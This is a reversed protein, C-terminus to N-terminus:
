KINYVHLTILTVMNSIPLVLLTEVVNIGYRPKMAMVTQIRLRGNADGARRRVFDVVENVDSYYPHSRHWKKFGKNEPL